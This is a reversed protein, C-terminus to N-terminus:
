AVRFFVRTRAQEAHSWRLLCTILPGGGLISDERRGKNPNNSLLALVQRLAALERQEDESLEGSKVENM